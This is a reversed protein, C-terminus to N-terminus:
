GGAGETLSAYLREVDEERCLETGETIVAASGAAIGYRAADVISAGAALRLVMAATMSDGAGIRSKAPVTPARLRNWGDSTAVVAGGSGLSVVVYRAKGESALRRAERGVKRDELSERGVLNALERLNPKILTPEADLTAALASGSTDVAFRVGADRARRGLRAYFDETVGPPLSGSGVIWDPKEPGEFPADLARRVEEESLRPGPMGFRYQHGRPTEIVTLNERTEESIEVRKEPVSERSLLKRLKEGVFGGACYVALTKGGLRTLVRSVNIGGGGPDSRPDRCRLKDERVVREVWASKDVAPNVTVTILLKGESM